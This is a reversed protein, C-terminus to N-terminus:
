QFQFRARFLKALHHNLRFDFVSSGDWFIKEFFYNVQLRNNDYIIFRSPPIRLLSTQFFHVFYGQAQFKNQEPNLLIFPYPVRKKM